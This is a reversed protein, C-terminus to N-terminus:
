RGRAGRLADAVQAEHQQQVFPLLHQHQHGVRELHVEVVLVLEDHAQRQGGEAVDAGCTHEIGSGCRRRPRLNGGACAPM